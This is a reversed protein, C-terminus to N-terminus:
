AANNQLSGYKECLTDKSMFLYRPMPTKNRKSSAKSSSLLHISYHSIRKFWTYMRSSFSFSEFGLRRYGKDISTIGIIGKIQERHHHQLVYFALAPMSNYVTKYLYLKNTAKDIKQMEKMIRVNHLHIKVLLDNKKIITGDSLVVERGKYRTLRIRFISYRGTIQELCQLRTCKLYFPDAISWVNIIHQKM